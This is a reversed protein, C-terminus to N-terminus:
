FTELKKEEISQGVIVTEKNPVCSSSEVNYKYCKDNHKYIEDKFDSLVPGKFIICNKDKCVKRFITALGLGLFVSIFVKGGDSHLLRNFNM